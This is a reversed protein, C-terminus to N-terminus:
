NRSNDLWILIEFDGSPVCRTEHCYGERALITYLPYPERRNLMRIRQQNGLRCLAELVQELPEPPELDRTDLFIEASM